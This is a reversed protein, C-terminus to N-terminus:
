FKFVLGASAMTLKIKSPNGLGYQGYVDYSGFNEYQARIAFSSNLDIQCGVGYTLANKASNVIGVNNLTVGTYGSVGNNSANLKEQFEARAGGLKGFFSVSDGIHFTGTGAFAWGGSKLSWNTQYPVGGIAVSGNGQANGFDGYSVELGWAPTFQYDYALRYAKHNESCGTGTMVLTYWPSACANSEKAYGANIILSSKNQGSYNDAWAPSASLCIISVLAGTKINNLM